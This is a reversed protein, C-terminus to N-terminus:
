EKLKFRDRVNMVIPPSFGGCSVSCPSWSSWPSMVCLGIPENPDADCQNVLGLCNDVEQIKTDPCNKVTGM